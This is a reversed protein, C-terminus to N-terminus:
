KNLMRMPRNEAWQSCPPTTMSCVASYHQLKETKRDEHDLLRYTGIILWNKMTCLNKGTWLYMQPLTKTFIREATKVTTLLCVSLCVSLCISLCVFHCVSYCVFSRRANCLRRFGLVAVINVKILLNDLCTISMSWKEPCSISISLSDPCTM